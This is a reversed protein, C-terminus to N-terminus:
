VLGTRGLVRDPVPGLFPLVLLCYLVFFLGFKKIGRSKCFVPIQIDNQFFPYQWISPLTYVVLKQGPDSITQGDNETTLIFRYIRPFAWVDGPGSVCKNSLVLTQFVFVVQFITGYVEPKSCFSLSAKFGDTCIPQAVKGFSSTVSWESAFGIQFSILCGHLFTTM